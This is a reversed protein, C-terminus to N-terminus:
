CSFLNFMMKMLIKKRKAEMEDGSLEEFNSRLKYVM